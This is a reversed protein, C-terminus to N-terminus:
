SQGGAHSKIRSHPNRPYPNRVNIRRGRFAPRRPQRNPLRPQYGCTSNSTPQTNAAVQQTGKSIDVKEPDVPPPPVPAPTPPPTRRDRVELFRRHARYYQRDYRSEYRHILELSRSDDSLNRFAIAARTAAQESPDLAALHSMAGLRHMEYEMSAKEMGWIRMQRWRVVAMNEILSEEFPTQPQFEDLLATFLDLFRDTSEGNLVITTSLM